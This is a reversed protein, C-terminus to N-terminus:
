MLTQLSHLPPAHLLYWQQAYCVRFILAFFKNYVTIVVNNLVELLKTDGVTLREYFWTEIVDEFNEVISECDVKLRYVEVSPADWLDEPM